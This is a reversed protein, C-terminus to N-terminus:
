FLNFMFRKKLVKMNKQRPPPIKSGLAQLTVSFQELAGGLKVWILAFMCELIMLAQGRHFVQTILINEPGGMSGRM